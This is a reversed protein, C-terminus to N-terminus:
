LYFPNELICFKIHENRKSAWFFHVLLFLCRLDKKPKFMKDTAWANCSTM